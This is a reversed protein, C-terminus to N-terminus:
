GKWKKGKLRVKPDEKLKIANFEKHLILFNDQFHSTPFSFHKNKCIAYCMPWHNSYVKVYYTM